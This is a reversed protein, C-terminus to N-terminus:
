FDFAYTLKAILAREKVDGVSSRRENYVIYLDSLPRHILNFRVNSSTERTDSNYQILAHLFMRNSFLYGIRAAVLNTTFDGSPLDIDNHSWTLDTSFQYGPAFTIGM